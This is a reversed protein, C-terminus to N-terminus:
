APLAPRAALQEQPPAALEQQQLVARQRAGHLKEPAQQQTPWAQRQQTAVAQQPSAPVRPEWVSSSDTAELRV